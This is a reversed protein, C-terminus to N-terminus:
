SSLPTKKQIGDSVHPIVHESLELPVKRFGGDGGPEIFELRHIDPPVCKDQVAGVIELAAINLGQKQFVDFGGEM